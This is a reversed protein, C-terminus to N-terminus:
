ANIQAQYLKLSELIVDLSAMPIRARRNTDGTSNSSLEQANTFDSLAQETEKTKSFITLTYLGGTRAGLVLNYDGLPFKIGKGKKGLTYKIGIEEIKPILEAYLREANKQVIAETAEKTDSTDAVLIEKADSHYLSMFDTVSDVLSENGDWFYEGDLRCNDLMSHLMSEIKRADTVCWAKVISVKVPSITGLLERERKEPHDTTIGIKKIPPFSSDTLYKQLKKSFVPEAIYLTNQHNM